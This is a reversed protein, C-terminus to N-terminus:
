IPNMYDLPIKKERRGIRICEQDEGAIFYSDGTLIKLSVKVM